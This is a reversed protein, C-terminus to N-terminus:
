KRHEKRHCSVCLTLGNGIAYRLEPFLKWPKIHHANLNLGSAKAGCHQCAYNDRDFVAKRWNIYELRGMAATREKKVGGLWRPNKEKAFRIRRHEQKCSESGCTKYLKSHSPPVMEIVGCVACKREVRPSRSSSARSYIVSKCERKRCTSSKVLLQSPKVDFEDGCVCCPIRFKMKLYGAPPSM